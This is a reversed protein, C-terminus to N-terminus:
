VQMMESAGAHPPVHRLPVLQPKWGIDPSHVQTGGSRVQVWVSDGVHPPVHGFPCTHPGIAPTLGQSHTFASWVHVM